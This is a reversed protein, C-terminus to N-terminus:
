LGDSKVCTMVPLCSLQQALQSAAMVSCIGSITSSGKKSPATRRRTSCARLAATTRLKRRESFRWTLSSRVLLLCLHTCREAVQHGSDAAVAAQLAAIKNADLSWEKDCSMQHHQISRVGKDKHPQLQHQSNHSRNLHHTQAFCTVVPGRSLM